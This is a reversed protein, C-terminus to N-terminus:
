RKVWGKGGCRNRWVVSAARPGYVPRDPESPHACCLVPGRRTSHICNACSM